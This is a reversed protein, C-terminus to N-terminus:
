TSGASSMIPTQAARDPFADADRHKERTPKRGLVYVLRDFLNSGEPEIDTRAHAGVAFEILGLQLSEEGGDASRSLGSIRVAVHKTHLACFSMRLLVLAFHSMRRVEPVSVWNCIFFGGSYRVSGSPRGRRYPM